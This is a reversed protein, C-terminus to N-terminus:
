GRDDASKAVYVKVGHTDINAPAISALDFSTSPRLTDFSWAFSGQPTVFRVVEGRQVNVYKTHADLKIDRQAATAAAVMGNIDAAHNVAQASLSASLAIASFAAAFLASRTRNLKLNLM